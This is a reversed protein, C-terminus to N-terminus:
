WGCYNDILEKIIEKNENDLNYLMSGFHQYLSVYSSLGERQYEDSLDITKLDDNDVKNRLTNNILSRATSYDNYCSALAYRMSTDSGSGDGGHLLKELDINIDFLSSADDLTKNEPLTYFDHGIFEICKKVAALFKQPKSKQEKSEILWRMLNDILLKKSTFNCSIYQWEGDPECFCFGQRKGNIKLLGFENIDIRFNFQIIEPIADACNKISPFGNAWFTYKLAEEMPISHRSMLQTAQEKADLYNMGSPLKLYSEIESFTLKETTFVQVKRNTNKM